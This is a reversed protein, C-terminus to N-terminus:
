VSDAFSIMQTGMIRSRGAAKAKYLRSDAIQVVRETGDVNENIREAVGVSVTQKMGDPWVGFGAQMMRTVVLTANDINADPLLILFEEGGWRIIIDSTRLMGRMRAAVSSLIADGAQHGFKDNVTKFHDLDVLVIALHNKKRISYAWLARFIEEGSRRGLCNTLLDYSSYTVLQVLLGLQSGGIVSAMLAMMALSWLTGLENSWSSVDPIGTIVCYATLFPMVISAAELFTLPFFGLGSLILFPFLHYSKVVAGSMFGTTVPTDNMDLCYIYFLTPIVFLFGLQVYISHMSPAPNEYLWHFFVLFAVCAMSVMLRAFFLQRWLDHEFTFADLISSAPICLALFAVLLHIRGQMIEIRKRQVPLELTSPFAFYRYPHFHASIKSRSM